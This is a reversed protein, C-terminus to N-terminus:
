YKVLLIGAFVDITNVRGSLGPLYIHKKNQFHVLLMSPRITNDTKRLHMICPTPMNQEVHYQNCLSQFDVSMQMKTLSKSTEYDVSQVYIVFHRQM